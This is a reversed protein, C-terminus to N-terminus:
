SYLDMVNHYYQKQSLVIYRIKEVDAINELNAVPKNKTLLLGSSYDFIAKRTCTIYVEQEEFFKTQGIEQRHCNTSYSLKHKDRNVEDLTLDDVTLYTLHFHSAISQKANLIHFFHACFPFVIRGTKTLTSCCGM